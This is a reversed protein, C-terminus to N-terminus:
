ASTFKAIDKAGMSLAQKDLEGSLMLREGSLMLREESLMLRIGSLMLRMAM